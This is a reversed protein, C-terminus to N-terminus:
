KAGASDTKPERVFAQVIATAESFSIRTEARGPKKGVFVANEQDVEVVASDSSKITLYPSHTLDGKVDAGNLGMVTYPQKEGVRVTVPIRPEIWVAKGNIGAVAIGICVLAVSGIRQLSKRM